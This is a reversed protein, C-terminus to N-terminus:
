SVRQKREKRLSQFIFMFLIGITLIGGVRLLNMVALGYKGTAPDYHYCLLMIKDLASGLKEEAAEILGLRIDKPSFEIGYFYKSIVGKPTIVLVTAAHAFEGTTPDFASSFGIASTLADVVEKEATLFHWGKKAEPQNLQKMVSEKVASAQAATEEHDFSFSVIEFEKGPVFKLIKLAKIIGKLILSCLMPCEYYVPTLLIPKEKFFSGLKVKRGYEDSFELHLPLKDGIKPEIKVKQFIENQETFENASVFQVNGILFSFVILMLLSSQKLM